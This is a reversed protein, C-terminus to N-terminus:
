EITLMFALMYTPPISPEYSPYCIPLLFKYYVIDKLQKQVKGKCERQGNVM